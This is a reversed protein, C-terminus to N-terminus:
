HNIFQSCFSNLITAIKINEFLYKQIEIHTDRYYFELNRDENTDGIDHKFSISCLFVLSFHLFRPTNFIVNEIEQIWSFRLNTLFRLDVNQGFM